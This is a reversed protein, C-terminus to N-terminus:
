RWDGSLVFAAWYFPPLRGMGRQNKGPRTSFEMGRLDGSRPNNNLMDIQARRLAEARSLKNQWLNKYFAAMLNATQADDVRWLSGLVSSAGAVHCARQLGLLGEGSVTSGIGTQCASLAVLEVESLRLQEIELATLIGDDEELKEPHSAGALVIGSLLGPHFGAIESRAVREGPALNAASLGRATSVVQPPAFFGHTAFHLFRHRPATARVAQETASRGSLSTVEQADPYALSFSDAVQAIEAKTGALRRWESRLDGEGRVASRKLSGAEAKGPSARYDIDGVVLLTPSADGSAPDSALMDPLLQAVPLVVFSQSEILFKNPEKGPLAGWPIWATFGDPSILVTEADSVHSELPTWLIRRLRFGPEDNGPPDLAARWDNVAREITRAPGLDVLETPRERRVVFAIMRRLPSVHPKSAGASPIHWYELLDVLAVNDPLAERIDNPTRYRFEVLRRFGTSNVALERQLREVKDALQDLAQGDAQDRAQPGAHSLQALRRTATELEQSLGAIEPQEKGLADRMERLMQQRRSVAGKWALVEAYLDDRASPLDVMLSVYADLCLRATWTLALQQRESQSASTVQLHKRITNLARKYDVAALATKGQARRVTALNALATAYDPHQAGLIKKRLELVTQYRTEAAAFDRRTQYLNALNEIATAFDPHKKGQYRSRIDIVEKLQADAAGYDKTVTNLYAFEELVGARDLDAHAKALIESAQRLLAKAAEFNRQERQLRATEALWLAYGRPDSAKSRQRAESQQDLLRKARLYDGNLEYLRALNGCITLLAPHAPDLEAYIDIAKKFAPEADAYNAEGRYVMALNNLASAYYPHTTGLARECIEAARRAEPEARLYDGGERYFNALSNLTTAYDPHREGLTEQRIELAQRLLPEVDSSKGQWRLVMALSNLSNAYDPHHEGFLRERTAMAARILKEAKVDASRYLLGLNNQAAACEPSEVNANAAFLEIARPYNKDRAESARGRAWNLDGLVVLAKAYGTSKQLKHKELVAFSQHILSEAARYNAGLQLAKARNTLAEAYEPAKDPLQEFIAVAERLCTDARAYDAVATYVVGLQNLTAAYDASPPPLTKQEAASKRLLDEAEAYKALLYLSRAESVTEAAPSPKEGADALMGGSAPWLMAALMALFAAAIMRNM